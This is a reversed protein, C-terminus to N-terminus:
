RDLAFGLILRHEHAVCCLGGADQMAEVIKIYHKRASKNEDSGCGCHAGCAHQGWGVGMNGGDGLRDSDIM